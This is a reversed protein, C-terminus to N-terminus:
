CRDTKKKNLRSFNTEIVYSFETGVECYVSINKKIFVLRLHQTPFYKRNQTLIVPFVYISQVHYASMELCMRKYEGRLM